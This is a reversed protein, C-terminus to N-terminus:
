PRAPDDDDGGEDPAGGPVEGPPAPPRLAAALAAAPGTFDTAPDLMAHLLLGDILATLVVSLDAAATDARLRGAAQDEALRATLLDRFMRIQAACEERMAEDRMGQVLAEVLVRQGPTGTGRATLGSIAAVVGDLAGPAALIAAVPGELERELAHMVAARRLAEVSGFYYHVLANNARAREAVVRSTVAAWGGEALVAVAAELLRVRTPVEDDAM